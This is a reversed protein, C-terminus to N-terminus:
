FPILMIKKNKLRDITQKIEPKLSKYLIDVLGVNNSILIWLKKRDISSIDATKELQYNLVTIVHKMTFLKIRTDKTLKLSIGTAFLNELFSHVFRNFSVRLNPDSTDELLVTALEENYETEELFGTLHDIQMEVLEKKKKLWEIISLFVSIVIAIASICVGLKTQNLADKTAELEKLETLPKVIFYNESGASMINYTYNILVFVQNFLDVTKNQPIEGFYDKGNLTDINVEIYHLGLENLFAGTGCGEITGYETKNFIYVSLPEIIIPKSSCLKQVIGGPRKIVVEFTGLYVSRNYENKIRLEDIRFTDAEVFYQDNYKSISHNKYTHGVGEIILNASYLYSVLILFIILVKKM